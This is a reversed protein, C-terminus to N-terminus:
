LDRFRVRSTMNICPHSVAASDSLVMYWIHNYASTGGGNFKLNKNLKINAKFLKHDNSAGLTLNYTRDSLVIFQGRGDHHYPANVYNISGKTTSSLIDDNLPTGDEKWVFFIVRMVNTTDSASVYGRVQMSTLYAKDGDRSTDSSGAPILSLCGLNGSYDPCVGVTTDFYKLEAQRNIVNKTVKRIQKNLGQKTRIDNRLKKRLSSFNTPM